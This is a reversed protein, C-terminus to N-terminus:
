LSDVPKGESQALGSGARDPLRGRLSIVRQHGDFVQGGIEFDFCLREVVPRSIFAGKWYLSVESSFPIYATM